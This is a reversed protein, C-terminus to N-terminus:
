VLALCEAMGLLEASEKLSPSVASWRLTSGSESLARQIVFLLQVGAADIRAVSGGDLEIDGGEEVRNMLRQHYEASQAITLEEPLVIDANQNKENQSDEAM